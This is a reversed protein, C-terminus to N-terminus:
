PRPSNPFCSFAAPKEGSEAAMAADGTWGNREGRGAAGAPISMLAAAETWWSNSSIREVLNGGDSGFHMTAAEAVSSRLNVGTVTQLTPEPHEGDFELEVYHFGHYTFEPQYQEGGGGKTMYYDIPHAWYLNGTFARGDDPGIPSHSLAETHKITINVGRKIGAPLSLRM